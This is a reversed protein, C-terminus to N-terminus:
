ESSPFTVSERRPRNTQVISAVRIQRSMQHSHSMQVKVRPIVALQVVADESGSSDAGLTLDVFSASKRAKGKSTNKSPSPALASSASAIWVEGGCRFCSSEWAFVNLGRLHCEWDRPRVVSRFFCVPGVGPRYLNPEHQDRSSSSMRRLELVIVNLVGIPSVCCYQVVFVVFWKLASAGTTPVIVRKGGVDLTIRSM